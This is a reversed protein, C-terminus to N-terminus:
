SSALLNLTNQRFWNCEVSKEQSHLQYHQTLYSPRSFCKGCLQCQFPREHAHIRYHQILYSSRSFAKSCDCCQYAREGVYDHKRQYRILHRKIRPLRPSLVDAEHAKLHQFFHMDQIFAKGCQFCEYYDGQTHTRVRGCINARQIFSKGSSKESSLTRQHRTLYPMLYFAERCQEGESPKKGTHIQEHRECATQTGFTRECWECRNLTNEQLFPEVVPPPSTRIGSAACEQPGEELSHESQETLQPSRMSEESDQSVEQTLTKPESMTVPSALKESTVQSPDLPEDSPEGTDGPCTKTDSDEEMACSEEEELQSIIDPKSFQYGLSILNRYNELMVERYLTRQATSLSALEEPSFDVFVDQFTVLEQSGASPLNDFMEIGEKQDEGTNREEALVSDQAPFDLSLLKRYNEMNDQIPNQPERDETLDVVDQYSVADQSRSEYDMMFDRRRHGREMAFTKEMVPLSRDRQPFRSRPSRTYPWHDRFELDRSRGRRDRDWEWEQERDRDWDRHRDRDWHHDWDRDRDRCFYTPRPPPSEAGKRSMSDESHVDSNNDEPEYMEKYSELLTVLKECSQPKKARVWPKIREPLITLYQELVLLEVIEEKTHTEPQLWDLCLNRLKILTKRPGVFEVYLFNRFRQHFFESDTAGEGIIADPEKTLDSDLEYLDPAWSRKPKNASLYKPPLM